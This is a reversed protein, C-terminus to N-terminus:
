EGKRQGFVYGLIATLVPLLLNLLFLQSLSIWFDRSSRKFEVLRILLESARKLSEESCSNGCATTQQLLREVTAVEPPTRVLESVAIIGLLVGGIIGILAIVQLALGVGAKQLESM